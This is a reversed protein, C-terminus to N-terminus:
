CFATRTLWDASEDVKLEREVPEAPAGPSNLQQTDPLSPFAQNPDNPHIFPYEAAKVWPQSGLPLRYGLPSDGPVLRCHEDRLYWRGSQWQDG